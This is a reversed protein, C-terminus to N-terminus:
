GNPGGSTPVDFGKYEEPTPIALGFKKFVECTEFYTLKALAAEDEVRLDYGPGVEEYTAEFIDPQCPYYEGAIGKIVYDGPCVIHGGELTDIWGHDHYYCGCTHNTTGKYDPTRFRRVIKGELCFGPLYGDEPHDGNQFWRHAEVITPKKRYKAM